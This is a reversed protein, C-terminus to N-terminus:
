REREGSDRGRGVAASLARVGALRAEEPRQAGNAQVRAEQAPREREPALVHDRIKDADRAARLIERPDERLVKIWSKVYAAHQGPDHGIGLEDGIMLSAIEARLEEKAYGESGFPHALDRDLRKPHGSAHGLEHLATAYFADASKFGDRPPLHIRDTAPRYFARDAQDHRIEVGSAALLAEAREHRDWAPSRVELPPLGEVQDANFVVASFVRPRELQVTRTVKNGEADRVPKGREDTVPVRDNLKWYQVLTGKEGKRVQAEVSQAQRYTLWRPDERDQMQLWIANSGRYRTGSVPNHPLQLSGPAWPKQWPATGAELQAILKDAVQEYYPVKEKREGM